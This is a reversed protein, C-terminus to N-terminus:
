ANDKQVKVVTGFGGKGLNELEKFQSRYWSSREKVGGDGDVGNVGAGYNFGGRGPDNMWSDDSASSVDEEGQPADGVVYDAPPM